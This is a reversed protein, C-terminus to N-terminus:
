YIQGNSFVELYYSELDKNLNNIDFYDAIVGQKLFIASDLIPATDKILHTCIM